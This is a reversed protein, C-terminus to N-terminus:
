RGGGSQEGGDNLNEEAKYVITWKAQGSLKRDQMELTQMRRQTYENDLTHVVRGQVVM